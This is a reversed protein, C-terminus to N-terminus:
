GEVEEEMMEKVGGEEIGATVMVTHSKRIRIESNPNRLLFDQFIIEIRMGCEANRM